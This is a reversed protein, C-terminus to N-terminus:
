YWKNDDDNFNIGEIGYKFLCRGLYNLSFKGESYTGLGASLIYPIVHETDGSLLKTNYGISAARGFHKIGITHLKDLCQNLTLFEDWSFKSNLHQVFLRALIIPKISDFSRDIFVMLAELVKNRYKNEENFRLQFEAMQTEGINGKHFENLFLLTRKLFAREKIASGVDVFAKVSKVLPIEKLIENEILEDIGIEAYDISLDITPDVLEKGFNRILTM